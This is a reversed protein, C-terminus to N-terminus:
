TWDLLEWRYSNEHFREGVDQYFTGWSERAVWRGIEPAFWVNEQRQASVRESINTFRFNIINHYRLTVFHGAPVQIDDWGHATMSLQWPLVAPSTPTKYQTNVTTSWGPRLEHPWLPIPAEYAQLEEWHPDIIVMGWPAQVENPLPAGRPDDRFHNRLWAQGWDPYGVPDNLGSELRSVIGITQDVMSVRDTQTDVMTGTFYDYKAYRWSQGVAPPRISAASGSAAASTGRSRTTYGVSLGALSGILARRTVIAM